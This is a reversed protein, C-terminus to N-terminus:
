KGGRVERWAGYFGMITCALCIGAETGAIFPNPECYVERHLALPLMLCAGTALSVAFLAIAIALRM